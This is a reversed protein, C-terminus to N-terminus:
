GNEQNGYNWNKETWSLPALDIKEIRKLVRTVVDLVDEDSPAPLPYFRLGGSGDEADVGEIVLTHFHVNLRL